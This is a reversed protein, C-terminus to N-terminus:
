IPQPVGWPYCYHYKHDLPGWLYKVIPHDSHDMLLLGLLFVEAGGSPTNPPTPAGRILGGLLLKIPPESDTFIKPTRPTNHM